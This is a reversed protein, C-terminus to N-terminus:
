QQNTSILLLDHCDGKQASFIQLAKESNRGRQSKTDHAKLDAVSRRVSLFANSFYIFGFKLVPVIYRTSSVWSVRTQVVRIALRVFLCPAVAHLRECCLMVCTKPRQHMVCKSLMESQTSMQETNLKFNAVAAM